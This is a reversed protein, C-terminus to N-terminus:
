KGGYVEKVVGALACAGPHRRFLDGTANFNAAPCVKCWPRKECNACAGFDRNRLGRLYDLNEDTWIERSTKERVNGLVYGHMAGCPYYDGKANLYMRTEGIDCVKADISPMKENWNENFLELNCELVKRLEASSCVHAFNGCGHDAQAVIGANAALRVRHEDAFRKLEGFATQNEKLLPSAIRYHIGYKDCLELAKMTRVWSGPLQTIADHEEPKMSYLSVNIVQPDIEKLFEIRREDALTMNSLIILNLNLEVCKRCIREFDPHMMVEGGSLHITLGNMERFETLAKEALEVSLFHNQERPVYCHVCRETCADTLDLHLEIPLHHAVYFEHIPDSAANLRNGAGVKDENNGELVVDSKGITKVGDCVEILCEKELSKLLPGYWELVTAAPCDMCVSLSSIIEKVCKPGGRLALELPRANSVVFSAGSRPCWALFDEGVGRMFTNKAVGVRQDLFTSGGVMEPNETLSELSEM